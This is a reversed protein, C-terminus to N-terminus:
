AEKAALKTKSLFAKITPLNALATGSVAFIIVLAQIIDVVATPIGSGAQMTNAGARLVAFFYAVLVTGIPNLQGILAIAVGDFGFGQGFGAMLRYSVGHLEM